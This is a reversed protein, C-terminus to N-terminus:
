DMIGGEESGESDMENIFHCGGATFCVGMDGDPIGEFYEGIFSIQGNLYYSIGFGHKGRSKKYSLIGGRYRVKGTDELGLQHMGSFYDNRFNGIWSINGFIIEKGRGERKGNVVEGEYIVEGSIPHYIKQYRLSHTIKSVMNKEFETKSGISSNFLVLQSKERNSIQPQSNKNDFNKRNPINLMNSSLNLNGIQNIDNPNSDTEQKPSNLEDRFFDLKKNLLNLQELITYNYNNTQQDVLQDRNEFNMSKLHIRNRKFNTTTSNPNFNTLSDTISSDILGEVNVTSLPIKKPIHTQPRNTQRKKILEDYSTYKKQKM